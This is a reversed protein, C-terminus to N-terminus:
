TGPDKRGSLDIFLDKVKLHFYAALHFFVASSVHPPIEGQELASLTGAGVHLIRAMQAKSLGDRERLFAVNRCFQRLEQDIEPKM